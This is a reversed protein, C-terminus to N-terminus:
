AFRNFKEAELTCRRIQEHSMGTAAAIQRLSSGSAYSQRIAQALDIKTCRLTSALQHARGQPETAELEAAM